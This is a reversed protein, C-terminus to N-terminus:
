HEESRLLGGDEDRLEFKGEGGHLESELESVGQAHGGDEVGCGAAREGRGDELVAVVDRGVLAFSLDEGANADGREGSGLLGGVGDEGAAYAVGDDGKARLAGEEFVGGGAGVDGGEVGAGDDFGGACALGEVAAEGHGEGFALVDDGGGAEPAAM